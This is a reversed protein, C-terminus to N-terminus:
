GIVRWFILLLKDAANAAPPSSRAVGMRGFAIQVQLTLSLPVIKKRVKGFARSM